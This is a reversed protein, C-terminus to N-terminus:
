SPHSRTPKPFGCVTYQQGRDFGQRRHSYFLDADRFTCYDSVVISDTALGAKLAQLRNLEALDLLRGQHFTGLDGHAAVFRDILEQSVEYSAAGVGPAIWLRIREARAGLTQMLSVGKSVIGALSGRWGAHLAACVGAEPDVLVVPLCDATRIVLFVGIRNIALGDCSPIEEQAATFPGIAIVEAGHVQDAFAIQSGPPLLKALRRAAEDRPIRGEPCFERSTSLCLFGEALMARDAIEPTYQSQM